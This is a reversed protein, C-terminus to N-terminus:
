AAKYTFTIYLDSVGTSIEGVTVFDTGSASSSEILRFTTPTANTLFPAVNGTFTLQSSSISGSGNYTGDGSHPLGRFYLDNGATMGTTDINSAEILVTVLPGVKVYYADPTTSSTNGGTAADAIVCSFTGDEYSSLTNSGEDFSIGDDADIRGTIDVASGNLFLQASGGDIQVSTDGDITVTTAADLTINTGSVTWLGTAPNYSLRNSTAIVLDFTDFDTTASSFEMYSRAAASSTGFLIGASSSAAAGVQIYANGDNEFTAVTGAFPTVGSSGGSGQFTQTATWTQAVNLYALNGGWYGVCRWNGSGESVFMAMDGAVTTIDAGYPLILQTGDHTLTLAGSFRLFKMTGAKVTGFGEITTTGSITIYHASRGAINTTTASAITDAAFHDATHGMFQRLGNDFNSPFNGGEIGIGGIDTNNAATSDYDSFRNKAM